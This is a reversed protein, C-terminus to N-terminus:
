NCVNNCHVWFTASARALQLLSISFFQLMRFLRFFASSNSENPQGGAFLLLLQQMDLLSPSLALSLYHPLLLYSLRSFVTVHRGGKEERRGKSWGKEEREEGGEAGKWWANKTSEVWKSASCLAASNHLPFLAYRFFDWGAALFALAPLLLVRVGGKGGRLRSVLTFNILMTYGCKGSALCSGWGSGSSM